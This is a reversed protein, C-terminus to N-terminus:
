AERTLLRCSKAVGKTYSACLKDNELNLSPHFRAHDARVSLPPGLRSVRDALFLTRSLSAARWILPNKRLLDDAKVIRGTM